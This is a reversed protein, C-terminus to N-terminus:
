KFDRQLANKVIEKEQSTKQMRSHKSMRDLNKLGNTMAKEELTKEEKLSVTTHKDENKNKQVSQAKFLEKSKEPENQVVENLLINKEKPSEEEAVKIPESSTNYYVIGVTLVLLLTILSLKAM